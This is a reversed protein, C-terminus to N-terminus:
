PGSRGTSWAKNLEDLLVGLSIWPAEAEERMKDFRASDRDIRQKRLAVTILNPETKM